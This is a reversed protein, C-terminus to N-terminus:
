RCRPIPTSMAWTWACGVERVIQLLMEPEPELVNELCVTMGEPIDFEKWFAISQEQYWVPYYLWPNYGGHLIVKDAGYRQAM